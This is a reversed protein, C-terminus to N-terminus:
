SRDDDDIGNSPNIIIIFWEILHLNSTVSETFGIKPCIFNRNHNGGSLHICRKIAPVEKINVFSAKLLCLDTDIICLTLVSNLFM